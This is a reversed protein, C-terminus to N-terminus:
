APDWGFVEESTDLPMFAAKLAPAAVEASREPTWGDANHIVRIPRPSSFLYIENLRCGFM